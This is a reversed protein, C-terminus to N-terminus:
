LYSRKSHPTKFQDYFSKLKKNLTKYGKVKKEQLEKEKQKAEKEKEKQLQENRVNQKMRELLYKEHCDKTTKGVYGEHCFTLHSATIVFQSTKSGCFDCQKEIVINKKRRM